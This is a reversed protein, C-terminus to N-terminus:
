KSVAIKKIISNNNEDIIKVFYIGISLSSVNIELADIGSQSDLEIQTVLEGFSNFLQVSSVLEKSDIKLSTFTKAPNPYFESLNNSEAIEIDLGEKKFSFSYLGTPATMPKIVMKGSNSIVAFYYEYTGADVKNPIPYSYTGDENKMLTGETWNNEGKLRFYIKASSIGEKNLIRASIDFQNRTKEGNLYPHHYILIPNDAPIQKTICHIAGGFGDFARVDIPIIEYGPYKAQISDLDAMMSIKDGTTEDAFVPQLIAKNVYTHNSYTRTYKFYDANSSYWSGNDKKPFPINTGMYKTKDTRIISIISDVNKRVIPYDTFNAMQDPMKSFVFENENWMDAYLDVHGTGGDYKLSPLVKLSSLNLVKKVTDNVQLKTLAKKQTEYVDGKEDMYYQGYVDSNTYYIADSTFLNREGDLIVNGGEFELTTKVLPIKMDNAVLQPISDDLPRGGYYEMDLFALQYDNGYYFGMPGSDRYWFSNGPHVFFKYNKLPTGQAAMYNKVITSDNPYWVNIWVQANKNIGDALKCFIKPYPSAAFTDVISYVPGLLYEKKVSDYYIGQGDFLQETVQSLTDFTVYPWAIMIAQVEDFEGPFIAEQLINENALLHSPTSKSKGSNIDETNIKPVNLKNRFDPIRRHVQQNAKIFDSESFSNLKEHIESKLKPSPVREIDASAINLFLFFFFILQLLTLKM